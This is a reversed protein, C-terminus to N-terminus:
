GSITNQSSLPINSNTPANFMQRGQQYMQAYYGTKDEVWGIQAARAAVGDVWVTELAEPLPSDGDDDYLDAQTTYDWVCGQLYASGRTHRINNGFINVYYFNSAGFYTPANDVIDVIMQTPQFTLPRSSSADIASDFVGVFEFGNSDVIPIAALDALAATRGYLASRAPNQINNGIDQALEKETALIADKFGTLPIEAGDLANAWTTTYATELTTADYGSLQALRLAAQRKVQLYNIM